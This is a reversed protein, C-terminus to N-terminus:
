HVTDAIDLSAVIGQAPQQIDDIKRGAAVRQIQQAIQDVAPRSRQLHQAAAHRQAIRYTRQQAVVIQMQEGGGMAQATRALAVRQLCDQLGRVACPQEVPQALLRQRAQM